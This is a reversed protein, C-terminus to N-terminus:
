KEKKLIKILSYRKTIAFYIDILNIPKTQKLKQKDKNTEKYMLKLQSM